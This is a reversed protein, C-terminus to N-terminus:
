RSLDGVFREVLEDKTMQRITEVALQKTDFLKRFGESSLYYHEDKNAFSFFKRLDLYKFTMDTPGTQTTCIAPASNNDSFLDNVDAFEKKLIDEVYKVYEDFEM